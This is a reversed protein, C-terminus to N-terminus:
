RLKLAELSQVDPFERPPTDGFYVIELGDLAGERAFM